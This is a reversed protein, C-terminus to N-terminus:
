LFAALLDPLVLMLLAQLSVPVLTLLLRKLKLCSRKGACEWRGDHIEEDWNGRQAPRVAGPSSRQYDYQVFSDPQRQTYKQLQVRRGDEAETIANLRWWM